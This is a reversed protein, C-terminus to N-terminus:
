KQTHQPEPDELWEALEESLWSRFQQELVGIPNHYDNCFSVDISDIPLADVSTETDHNDHESKCTPRNVFELRAMRTTVVPHDFMGWEWTKLALKRLSTIEHLYRLSDVVVLLQRTKVKHHAWVDMVSRCTPDSFVDPGLVARCADGLKLYMDRASMGYRPDIEQKAKFDGHKQQDSLQFVQDALDKLPTSMNFYHAGFEERAIKACASKGSGVRGALGIVVINTYKNIM